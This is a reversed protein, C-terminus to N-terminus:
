KGVEKKFHLTSKPDGPEQLLPLIGDIFKEGLRVCEEKDQVRLKKVVV